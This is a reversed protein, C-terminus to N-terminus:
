GFRENFRRKRWGAEDAGAAAAAAGAAPPNLFQKRRRAAAEQIDGELRTRLLKIVDPKGHEEALDLPTLGDRNKRIPDAGADLLVAVIKAHGFRAADHLATDGAYDTGDVPLGWDGVLKRVVHTHGWFAAKHLATRHSGADTSAKDLTPAHTLVAEMHELSGHMAMERFHGAAVKPCRSTLQGTAAPPLEPPPQCSTPCGLAVLKAFARAFDRFFAPEDSAYVEAYRRFSPDSKLALDTPLMTLSQTKADTYQLNGQWQREVWELELLNKFYENNFKLPTSTWPGDFGSRVFHCRGVTHAGSLAVIDRDDFGMRYFVDRLHQAGQTADPLRGHAPCLSGDPRDIRGFGHAVAPGGMFEVAKCGALTWLDAYSVDPCKQKVRELLDHIIFLGANAPDSHEPEFRMGGGNSGGSYDTKDFTGSAHWAVRVAMPCANVKKNIIAEKIMDAAMERQQEVTPRQVFASEAPSAMLM